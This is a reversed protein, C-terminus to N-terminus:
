RAAASAATELVDELTYDQKPMATEMAKEVRASIASFPIRGERFLRNAAENAANLAASVIRRTRRSAQV